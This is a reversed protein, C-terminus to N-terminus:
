PTFLSGVHFGSGCVGALFILLSREVLRGDGGIRNPLEGDPVVRGDPTATSLTM